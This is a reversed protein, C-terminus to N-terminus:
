KIPLPGQASSFPGHGLLHLRSFFKKKRTPPVAVALGQVVTFPERLGVANMGLEDGV